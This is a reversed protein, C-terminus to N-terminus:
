EAVDEASGNMLAPLGRLEWGVAEPDRGAAYQGGGLRTDDHVGHCARLCLEPLGRGLVQWGPGERVIGIKMTSEPSSTVATKEGRTTAAIEKKPGMSSTVRRGDKCRKCRLGWGKVTSNAAISKRLTDAHWSEKAEPRKRSTGFSNGRAGRRTIRKEAWKLKREEEEPLYARMQIEIETWAREEVNKGRRPRKQHEGRMGKRTGQLKFYGPLPMRRPDIGGRTRERRKRLEPAVHPGYYSLPTPKKRGRGDSTDRIVRENAGTRIKKEHNKPSVAGDRRNEGRCNHTTKAKEGSKGREDKMPSGSYRCTVGGQVHSDVIFLRMLSSALQSKELNGVDHLLPRPKGREQDAATLRDRTWEGITGPVKGNAVSM